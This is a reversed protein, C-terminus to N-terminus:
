NLKPLLKYMTLVIVFQILLPFIIYKNPWSKIDFVVICGVIDTAYSKILTLFIM